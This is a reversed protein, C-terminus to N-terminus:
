DTLLTGRLQRLDANTLALAERTYADFSGWQEDIANFAGTLWEARVEWLPKMLRVPRPGKTLWIM